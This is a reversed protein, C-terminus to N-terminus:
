ATYKPPSCGFEALLTLNHFVTEHLLDYIIALHINYDLVMKFNSPEKDTIPPKDAVIVSRELLRVKETEQMILPRSYGKSVFRNSLEQSQALYDSELTCNRRLRVFQGRPINCLWLRHHCSSLPIYGNRDVTKFYNKTLLVNDSKFIELDLFNIKDHSVTWTLVINKTNSNLKDMFLQLSPLDGEWVMILDDIYRRYCRLQHPRDQFVVDREWHAMFLNAVSPAFRAGMAVGCQQLFFEKNFWFYNRLLCFKLCDLLFQVHDYSLDSSELAWRVSTLAAEHDIITYLSGVDATVLITNPTCPITDLIQIIQKTDRLYAPLRCVLPQLFVDLYQGLRSSVSDIGNVIPRGPPREADKHLKPLFYIIPTRCYFPDLYSAEKSTLVGKGKGVEVLSHLENKYMVMPDGRLVSYTSRDSLHRSMEEFYYAKSLVVLGGGKDAPRIVIDNRKELSLIGRKICQSDKVRKINLSELDKCVMNRFVDLHRTDTYQPNFTSRNRLNSHGPTIGSSNREIPNSLFYKKMNLSRTYKQVNVYTQFKNM